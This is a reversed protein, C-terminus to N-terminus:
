ALGAHLRHHTQWTSDTPKGRVNKGGPSNPLGRCVSTVAFQAGSEGAPSKNPGPRAFICRAQQASAPAKPVPM